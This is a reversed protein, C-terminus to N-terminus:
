IKIKCSLKKNLAVMAERLDGDKQMRTEISRFAHLITAHNRGFASAIAPLSLSTMKRCLYMAVQRPLAVTGVRRKSIMEDPLIEYHEAVVKQIKEMSLAEQEDQDFIDGLLRGVIEVRLPKGTLSTYSALRVLAGELRRVNTRVHEALYVLTEESLKVGMEKQKQKLIAIRTETDPAELSTTLGWEFRSVLRDEVDPIESAPRDSTLVIQKHSEFLNNFTHFFEEQLHDKGALFHVDDILLVDIFRYKKRFAGMGKKQLAEIFENVFAECSSFRVNLRHHDSIYHGIAQMLHTKGLGVGGYIFLPNYANGPAQAVARAAAHAFNNSPGVVFGEFVYKPNLTLPLSIVRENKEVRSAAVQRKVAKAPRDLLAVDLCTGVALKIDMERGCVSNVADKILIFYNEKLWDLYFDNAVSLILTNGNIEKEEILSIWREYVDKPLIHSLYQCAKAWISNVTSNMSNCPSFGVLYLVLFLFLGRNTAIM